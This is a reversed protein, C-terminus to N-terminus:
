NPVGPTEARMWDPAGVPLINRTPYRLLEAYLGLWYPEINVAQAYGRIVSESALAYGAELRTVQYEKCQLRAAMEAPTLGAVLRAKKLAQHIM